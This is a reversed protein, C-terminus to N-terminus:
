SVQEFVDEDTLIEARSAKQQMRDRLSRFKKLFLHQKLAEGIVEEKALGEQESLEDLAVKLEDPLTVTISFSM